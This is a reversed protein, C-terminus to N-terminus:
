PPPSAPIRNRSFMVEGPADGSSQVTLGVASCSLSVALFFLIFWFHNTKIEILKLGGRSHCVGQEDAARQCKDWLM